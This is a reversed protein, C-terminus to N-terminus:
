RATGPTTTPPQCATTHQRGSRATTPSLMPRTMALMRVTAATAWRSLPSASTTRAGPGRRPIQQSAASPSGLGGGCPRAALALRPSSSATRRSHPHHRVLKPAHLHRCPPRLRGPRRRAHSRRDQQLNCIQALTKGAATHHCLQPQIGTASGGM